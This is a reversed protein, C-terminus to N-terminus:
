YLSQYIQLITERALPVYNNVLLRQQKEIVSDTFSEAESIKMGYERLKKEPLLRNLSTELIDYVYEPNECKVASSLIRNLEKIKGGPKLKNYIRLVEIFFRYNAEGHAVHYSGGLPYSLAHIAGVGTFGFAIGAFNSAVLFDDLLEFRYDPGNELMKVYGGLIREIANVCFLETYSNSKPSVYSEVAHILADISSTIFVTYPLTRLLEPILVSHDAYLADDALGRKMREEKIEAISINTVESGTGCTTPVIILSKCKEIPIERNFAQISKKVGKLALIKSIDIVTGGGVAIIRNYDWAELDKIIQDIMINSPEGSGYREQFLFRCEIGLPKIYPEYLFENTVILDNRNLGFDRSFDYFSKYQHIRPKLSFQLM